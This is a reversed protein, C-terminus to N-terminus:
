YYPPLVNDTQDGLLLQFDLRGCHDDDAGLTHLCKKARSPLQVSLNHSFIADQLRLIPYANCETRHMGATPTVATTISPTKFRAPRRDDGM